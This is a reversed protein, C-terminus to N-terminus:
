DEDPEWEPEPEEPATPDHTEIYHEVAEVVATKMVATLEDLPIDNHANGTDDNEWSVRVNTYDDEDIFTMPWGRRGDADAGYNPDHSFVTTRTFEINIDQGGIVADFGAHEVSKGNM